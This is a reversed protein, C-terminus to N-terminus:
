DLHQPRVGALQVCRRQQRREEGHEGAQDGDPRHGTLAGVALQYHQFM